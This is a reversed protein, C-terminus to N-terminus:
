HKLNKGVFNPIGLVSNSDTVSKLLERKMASWGSKSAHKGSMPCCTLPSTILNFNPFFFEDQLGGFMASTKLSLLMNFVLHLDGIEM